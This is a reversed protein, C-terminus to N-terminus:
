NTFLLFLNLEIRCICMNDFSCKNYIVKDFFCFVGRKLPAKQKQWNERIGKRNSTAKDTKKSTMETYARNPVPPNPVDAVQQKTENKNDTKNKKSM